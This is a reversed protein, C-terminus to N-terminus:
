HKNLTSSLRAEVAPASSVELYIFPFLLSCGQRRGRGGPDISRSGRNRSSLGDLPISKLNVSINM